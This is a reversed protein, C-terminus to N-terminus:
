RATSTGVHSTNASNACRAHLMHGITGGVQVWLGVAGAGVAGLGLRCLKQVAPVGKARGFECSKAGATRLLLLLGLAVSGCVGM